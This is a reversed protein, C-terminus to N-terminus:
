LSSIDLIFPILDLAKERNSKSEFERFLEVQQNKRRVFEPPRQRMKNESMRELKNEFYNKKFDKISEAVTVLSKFGTNVTKNFKANLSECASSTCDTDGNLIAHYHEAQTFSFRHSTSLYRKQVDLIMARYAVRHSASVMEILLELHNVLAFKVQPVHLPLVPIAHLIKRVYKCEPSHVAKGFVTQTMRNIIQKWHFSCKRRVSNPFLSDLTKLIASEFDCSTATPYINPSDPNYFRNIKQLEIFIKSYSDESKNRMLVMVVPYIFVRNDPSEYKLSIIYTQLFNSLGNCHKFTGDLLWHSNALRPLESPIAFIIFDEYVYMFPETCTESFSKYYSFWYMRPYMQVKM